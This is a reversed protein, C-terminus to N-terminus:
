LNQFAQDDKASSWETLTGGLAQAFALDLVTARRLRVESGEIEFGIVDGAKLQLARRVPTPVTAQFKSTLKSTHLM